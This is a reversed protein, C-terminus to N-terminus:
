GFAAARRGGLGGERSCRLGRPKWGGPGDGGKQVRLQRCQERTQVEWSDEFPWREPPAPERPEDEGQRGVEGTENKAGGGWEEGLGSWFRYNFLKPNMKSGLVGLSRQVGVRPYPRQRPFFTTKKRLEM